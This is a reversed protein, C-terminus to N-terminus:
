MEETKKCAWGVHAVCNMGNNDCQIGSNCQGNGDNTYSAGCAARCNGDGRAADNAWSSCETAAAQSNGGNPAYVNYSGTSCAEDPAATVSIGSPSAFLALVLSGLSVWKLTRM